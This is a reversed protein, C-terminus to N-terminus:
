AGTEDQTQSEDKERKMLKFDPNQKLFSAILGAVLDSDARLDVEVNKKSNKRIDILVFIIFMGMYYLAIQYNKTWVNVLMAVLCFAEFLASVVPEVVKFIAKTKEWIITIQEKM